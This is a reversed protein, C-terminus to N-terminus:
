KRIKTKHYKKFHSHVSDFRWFVLLSFGVFFPLFFVYM